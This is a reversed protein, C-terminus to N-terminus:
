QFLMDPRKAHARQPRHTYARCSFTAVAARTCASTSSVWRNPARRRSTFISAGLTFSRSRPPLDPIATATTSQMMSVAASYPRTEVHHQLRRRTTIIWPCGTKSLHASWPRCCRLNLPSSIGLAWPTFRARSRLLHSSIRHNPSRHRQLRGRHLRRRMPSLRTTTGSSRRWGPLKTSCPSQSGVNKTCEFTPRLKGGGVVLLVCHLYRFQCTNEPFLPM